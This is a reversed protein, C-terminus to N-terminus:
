GACEIQDAIDRHVVDAAGDIRHHHVALGVAAGGLTDALRQPLAAGVIRLALHQRCREHVVGHRAGVDHRREGGRDALHQRRGVLEAHAAGAFAAGGACEAGHDVGHDVCEGFEADAMDLHRHRGLADPARYPRPLLSKGRGRTPLSISPALMDSMKVWCSPGIRRTVRLWGSRPLATDSSITACSEAMMSPASLDALTTTSRPAPLSKQTPRAVM